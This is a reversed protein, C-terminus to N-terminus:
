IYTHLWTTQRRLHHCDRQWDKNKRKFLHNLKLIHKLKYSQSQLIQPEWLLMELSRRAPHQVIDVPLYKSTKQFATSNLLGFVLLKDYWIYM